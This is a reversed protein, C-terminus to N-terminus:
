CLYVAKRFESSFPSSKVRCIGGHPSSYYKQQEATKVLWSFMLRLSHGGSNFSAEPNIKKPVSFNKDCRGGFIRTDSLRGPVLIKKSWRTPNILYM